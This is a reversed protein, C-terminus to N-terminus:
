TTEENGIACGNSAICSDVHDPWSRIISPQQFHAQQPLQDENLYGTSLNDLEDQFHKRLREPNTLYKEKNQQHSSEHVYEKGGLHTGIPYGLAKMDSYGILCNPVNNNPAIWFEIEQAYVDARNPKIVKLCIRKGSFSIPTGSGNQCRFSDKKTGYVQCKNNNAM